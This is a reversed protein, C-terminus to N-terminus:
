PKSVSGDRYIRHHPYVEPSNAIEYRFRWFLLEILGQTKASGIVEHNAKPHDIRETSILVIDTKDQTIRYLHHELTSGTM